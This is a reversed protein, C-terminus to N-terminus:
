GGTSSRAGSCRGSRLGERRGAWHPQLLLGGHIFLPSSSNSTNQMPPNRASRSPERLDKEALGGLPKGDCGSSGPFCAFHKRRQIHYFGDGRGRARRGKRQLGDFLRGPQPAALAAQGSDLSLCSAPRGPLLFAPKTRNITWAFLRGCSRGGKCHIM